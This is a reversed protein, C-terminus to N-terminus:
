LCDLAIKRIEHRRRGIGVYTLFIKYAAYVGPLHIKYLIVTNEKLILKYPFWIVRNFTKYTGQFSSILLEFFWVYTVRPRSLTLSISEACSHRYIPITNPSGLIVNFYLSPISNQISNEYM